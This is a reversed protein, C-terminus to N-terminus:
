SVEDDVVLTRNLLQGAKLAAQHQQQYASDKQQATQARGFTEWDPYSVVITTQGVNDGSVIRGLRIDSAGNKRMLAASDRVIRQADDQSIQWRSVVTIAMKGGIAVMNAAGSTQAKM